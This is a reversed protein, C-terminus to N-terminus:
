RGSRNPSRPRRALVAAPRLASTLNSRLRGQYVALLRKAEPVTLAM